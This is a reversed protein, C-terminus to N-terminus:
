VCLSHPFFSFLPIAPLLALFTTRLSRNTGNNGAIGYDRRRKVLLKARSGGYSNLLYFQLPLTLWRPFSRRSLFGDVSFLRPTFRSFSRKQFLAWGLSTASGGAISRSWRM